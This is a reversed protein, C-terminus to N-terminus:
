LLPTATYQHMSRQTPSAQVHEEILVIKLKRFFRLCLMGTDTTNLWAFSLAILLAQFVNVVSSFLILNLM